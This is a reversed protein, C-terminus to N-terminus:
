PLTLTGYRCIVLLSVLVIYTTYHVNRVIYIACQITYIEHLTCQVNYLACKTCHLYMTCHADVIWCVTYLAYLKESM